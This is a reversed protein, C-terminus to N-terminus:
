EQMDRSSHRYQQPTVGLIAKFVTYYYTYNNFGVQEAVLNIPMSTDRLLVKSRSVRYRSLYGNFTM